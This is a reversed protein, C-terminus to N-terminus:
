SLKVPGAGIVTTKPAILRTGWDRIHDNKM